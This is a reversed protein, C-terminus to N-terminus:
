PARPRSTAEPEEEKCELLFPAPVLFHRGQPWGPRERDSGLAAQEAQLPAITNALRRPSRTLPTRTPFCVLTTSTPTAGARGPPAPLEHRATSSM